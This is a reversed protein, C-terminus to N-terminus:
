KNKTVCTFLCIWGLIFSLGGFPTVAGIWNYDEVSVAKVYTLFYLSGSFLLIGAIFFIGAWRCFNNQFDKYLIGAALLTFVHYFQYRVGTEFINLADQSIRQRLGHAAFAGLAVSLAGVIAATKLFGKHM